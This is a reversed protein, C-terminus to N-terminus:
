GMGATLSCFHRMLPLHKVESFFFFFLFPFSFSFLSSDVVRQYVAWLGAHWAAGGHM